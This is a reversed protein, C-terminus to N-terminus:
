DLLQRLERNDSAAQKSQDMYTNAAELLEKYDKELPGNQAMAGMGVFTNKIDDILFGTQEWLADDRDNVLQGIKFQFSVVKNLVDQAQKAAYKLMPNGKPASDGAADGSNGANGADNASSAFSRLMIQLADGKPGVVDKVLQARERRLAVVKPIGGLYTEIGHRKNALIERQEPTDVAQEADALIGPISRATTDLTDAGNGSQVFERVRLQLDLTARDIKSTADVITVAGTYADMQRTVRGFGVYNLGGVALLIALVCLFGFWIKHRLNPRWAGVRATVGFKM